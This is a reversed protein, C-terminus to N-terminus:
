QEKSAIAGDRKHDTGGQPPFIYRVIRYNERFTKLQYFRLTMPIPYSNDYIVGQDYVVLHAGVVYTTHGVSLIFGVKDKNRRELSAQAITLAYGTTICELLNYMPRYAWPVYTRVYQASTAMTCDKFAELPVELYTALSAAVCKGTGAQYHNLMTLAAKHIKMQNQGRPATANWVLTIASTTSPADIGVPPACYLM